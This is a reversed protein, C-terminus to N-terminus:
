LRTPMPLETPAPFLQPTVSMLAGYLVLILAATYPAVRPWPLMKEALIILTVAAMAGFSMGLPFLIILLMWCCGLCYLGHILGTHFAGAIGEHWSTKIFDIPTRCQALCFEKLPTLQYLGAMMLIIGGGEATTVGTRVGSVKAALVGVFIVIGALAWVLLYAAVFVWTSVFAQNTLQEGAQERHYALIMPAATPVMMAVMMVVWIALYLLPRLGITAPAMTMDIAVGTRHWVLVAWAAAALSLLLVLIVNHELPLPDPKANDM